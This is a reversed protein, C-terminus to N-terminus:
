STRGACIPGLGTQISEPDTLRRNCKGCRGEHFVELVSPMKGASLQRWVWMFAVASKAEPGIKSNRGHAYAKGGFICGLYQYTDPGTLVAVFHSVPGRAVKPTQIRYTFHVGTKQSEFTVIANGALMYRLTADATSFSARPGAEDGQLAVQPAVQPAAQPAPPTEEKWSSFNLTMLAEKPARLPMSRVTAVFRPVDLYM